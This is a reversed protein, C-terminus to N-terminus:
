AGVPRARPTAAFQRSLKAELSQKLQPVAKDVNKEAEELARSNETVVSTLDSPAGVPINVLLPHSEFLLEAGGEGGGEDDERYPHRPKVRGFKRYGEALLDGLQKKYAVSIKRVMKAM